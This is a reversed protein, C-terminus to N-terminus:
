ETDNEAAAILQELKDTLRKGSEGGDGVVNRDLVYELSDLHAAVVHRESADLTERDRLFDCALEGISTVLDYGFSGGQGKLNHLKGFLDQAVRGIQGEGEPASEAADALIRKCTAVDEGAWATFNDALAAVAEEAARIEAEFDSADIATSRNAM